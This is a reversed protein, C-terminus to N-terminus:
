ASLLKSNGLWVIRQGLLTNVVGLCGVGLVFNRLEYVSNATLILPQNEQSLSIKAMVEQSELFPKLEKLFYNVVESFENEVVNMTLNGFNLHTM